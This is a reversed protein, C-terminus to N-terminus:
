RLKRYARATEMRRQRIHLCAFALSMSAATGAFLAYPVEAQREGYRSMMYQEEDPLKAARAAQPSPAKASRAFALQLQEQKQTAMGIQPQAQAQPNPQVQPNVNPGPQPQPQQVPAVPPPAPALLPLAAPPIVAAPIRVVPRPPRPEHPPVKEPLPDCVLTANAQGLAGAERGAEIVIPYIERKEISPCTFTVGFRITNHTKFDIGEAVPFSTTAIPTSSRDEDADEGVRASLQVEGVDTVSRLVSLIAGGM